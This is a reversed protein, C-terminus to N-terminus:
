QHGAISHPVYDAALEAVEDGTLDLDVAAVADELHALQTIGVIPSTVAPQALLWALAVQAPSVHRREAVALV